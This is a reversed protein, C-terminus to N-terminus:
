PWAVGGFSSAGGPAPAGAGAGVPTEVELVAFEAATALVVGVAGM